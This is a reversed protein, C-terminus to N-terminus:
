ARCTCQTERRCRRVYMCVYTCVTRYLMVACVFLVCACGRLPRFLVGAVECELCGALSCDAVFCSVERELAEQLTQVSKRLANLQLPNPSYGVLLFPLSPLPHLPSALHPAHFSSSLVTHCALLDLHWSVLSGACVKERLIRPRNQELKTTYQQYVQRLEATIVHEESFLPHHHFQVVGLGVDLQYSTDSFPPSPLPPSPLTHLLSFPHPPLSSPPIPSPHLAGLCTCRQDHRVKAM